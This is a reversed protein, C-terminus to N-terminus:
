FSSEPGRLSSSNRSVEVFEGAGVAAAQKRLGGSRLVEGGGPTPAQLRHGAPNHSSPVGRAPRKPPEKAAPTLVGSGAIVSLPSLRRAAPPSGVPDQVGARASTWEGARLLAGGGRLSVPRDWFPGAGNEGSTSCRAAMGRRSGVHQVCVASAAGTLVFIPAM